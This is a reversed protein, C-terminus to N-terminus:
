SGGEAIVGLPRASEPGGARGGPVPMGRERTSALTEALLAVSRISESVATLM